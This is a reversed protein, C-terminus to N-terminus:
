VDKDLNLLIKYKCLIVVNLVHVLYGYDPLLTVYCTVLSVGCSTVHKMAKAVGVAFSLLQDPSLQSVVAGKKRM